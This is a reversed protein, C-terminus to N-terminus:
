NGDNAFWKKYVDIVKIEKVNDEERGIGYRFAARDMVIDMSVAKPPFDVATCYPVFYDVSDIFFHMDKIIEGNRYIRIHRKEIDILAGFVLTRSVHAVNSLYQLVDISETYYESDVKNIAAFGVSVSAGANDCPPVICEYYYRGEVLACSGHVLANGVCTFVHESQRSCYLKSQKVDCMMLLEDNTACYYTERLARACNLRKHMVQPTLPVFRKDMIRSFGPASPLHYEVALMYPTQHHMNMANVDFRDVFQDLLQLLGEKAIFHLFTNGQEDVAHCLHEKDPIYTDKAQNESVIRFTKWQEDFLIRSLLSEEKKAKENYIMAVM